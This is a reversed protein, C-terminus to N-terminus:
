FHWSQVVQLKAWHRAGTFSPYYFLRCDELARESIGGSGPPFGIWAADMLNVKLWSTKMSAATRKGSWSKLSSFVITECLLTCWINPSLLSFRGHDFCGGAGLIRWLSQVVPKQHSWSWAAKGKQSELRALKLVWVWNMFSRAWDVFM